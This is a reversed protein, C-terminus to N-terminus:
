QLSSSVFLVWAVILAPGLLGILLGGTRFDKQELLGTSFAMANPPTSVPLYMATSASLGIVLALAMQHEPLIAMGLPILVTSTATHSMVNSLVMTLYAFVMLFVWYSLELTKLKEAYLTLLGSQQLAVGLSLGGAVLFLTDWPLSKVEKGTVVSTLTLFVIPIASVFAVSLGHLEGTLWLLVTVTIIMMVITRQAPNVVEATPINPNLFSLEVPQKSKIFMMSLAVFAIAFLLLSVPLGYAMWQLFDVEIGAHELAGAALVNPPSGIITAMGGISASIPVGLLLAKSLGSEKGMHNLLPMVSAIVMATTATNSMLMSAVFTTLMLGLLLNQPKNGSLRLTFALLKEDLQTKTMASAIFFGGLMLWIVSSSFTNVYRDIPEPHDNAIPNGLTFVLYAMIFLGVAFPPIAETFWLGIAFFLLFIVYEQSQTFTPETVFYTLLLAGILSGSFALISKRKLTGQEAETNMIHSYFRHLFFVQRDM